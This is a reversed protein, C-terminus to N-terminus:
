FTIRFSTGKGVQSYAAIHGGHKEIVTRVISLGLGAGGKQRSRAKDVTYFRDFIHPLDAEPIGIGKDEIEFSIRPQTKIRVAIEAPATSYKIANDMLNMIAM